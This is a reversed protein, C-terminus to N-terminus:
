LHLLVGPVAPEILLPGELVEAVAIQSDDVLVAALAQVHGRRGRGVACVDDLVGAAAAGVLLPLPGRGAAVVRELDPVAALTEVHGARGGRVAGVDLLVGAVAAGVLLPGPGSGSAKGAM